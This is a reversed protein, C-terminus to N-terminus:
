LILDKATEIILKYIYKSTVHVCFLEIIQNNCDAASFWPMSLLSLATGRRTPDRQLLRCVFQKLNIYGEFVRDNYKANKINEIIGDKAKENWFPPYGTLVAYLITGVSWLNGSESGQIKQHFQQDISTYENNDEVRHEHPVFQFINSASDLSYNLHDDDFMNYGLGTLKIREESENWLINYPHM